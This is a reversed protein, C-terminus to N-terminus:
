VSPPTELRSALWEPLSLLEPPAGSQILLDRGELIHSQIRYQIKRPVVASWLRRTFEADRPIGKVANWDLGGLPRQIALVLLDFFRVCNEHIISDKGAEDFTALFESRMPESWLPSSPSLLVYRLATLRGEEFLRQIGNHCRFLRLAETAVRAVLEDALENRLQRELGARDDTPGAPWGLFAWPALVELYADPGSLEGALFGLLFDREEERAVQDAPNTRFHIWYLCSNLIREFSQRTKLSVGVSTVEGSLLGGILALATHAETMATQHEDLSNSDAARSLQEHRFTVAGEFM